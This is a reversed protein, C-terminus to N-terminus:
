RLGDCEGLEIEVSKLGKSDGYLGTLKFKDM